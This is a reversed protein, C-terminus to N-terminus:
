VFHNPLKPLPYSLTDVFKEFVRVQDPILSLPEDKLIRNIVRRSDQLFNYSEKEQMKNDIMFRLVKCYIDNKSVLKDEYFGFPAHKESTLIEGTEELIYDLNKLDKKVDSFFNSKSSQELPINNCSDVLTNKLGTFYARWEIEEFSSQHFGKSIELEM